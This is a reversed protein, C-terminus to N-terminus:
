FLRSINNWNYVIVLGIAVGVAVLAV